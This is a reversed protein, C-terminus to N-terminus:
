RGPTTGIPEIRGRLKRVSKKGFVLDVVTWSDVAVPGSRFGHGASSGPAGTKMTAPTVSHDRTSIRTDDLTLSDIKGADLLTMKLTAQGYGHVAVDFGDDRVSVADVYVKEDEVLLALNGCWVIEGLRGEAVEVEIWGGGLRLRCRKVNGAASWDTNLLHVHRVGNGEDRVTYYVDGSPDDLAVPWDLSASLRRILPTMLPVLYSNGPYDFTCLLYATGKGVRNRVLIPAGSDAERALVEAGCLEVDALDVPAHLPGGSPYRFKDSQQYVGAVPNGAVDEEALMRVLRGGRGKVRAGFLDSFDGDHVLNLPELNNGLFARSENKTAHPVSMFLTGGDEVYAKLKGYQAEDMTNWGLLLLLKFQSLVEAPADIPILEIEGYPTGAYWRRVREPSQELTHLWVDPFFVDLYRLGYEATSPRWLEGTGGFNRWVLPALAALDDTRSLGDNVDCAYRGILCAQKVQLKGKRPHTKAYRNFRRMIDRRLLTVRDSPGYLRQHWTHYLHEEDNVQAAGAVFALYLSLWWMRLHQAGAPNVHGGEAQYTGWFPKRYTRAAGRADAILLVNNSKNFQSLTTEMGAACAQSHVVSSLLVLPGLGADVERVADVMRRFYAVCDEYATRMTRESEQVSYQHYQPKSAYGWLYGDCESWYYGKFGSGVERRIESALAFPCSDAVQFSIGYDRCYRAVALARERDGLVRGVYMDATQSDHIDRIVHERYDSDVPRLTTDDLGVLMSYQERECAAVQEIRACCGQAGARFRIEVDALPQRAVFSFRHVGAPLTGHPLQDAPTVVTEGHSPLGHLRRIPCHVTAAVNPDSNVLQVGPPSELELGSLQSQCSIEVTFEQNLVVWRPCATVEFPEELRQELYVRGLLLYHRDSGNTVRFTNSDRNLDTEPVEVHIEQVLGIRAPHGFRREASHVEVGNLSVSYPIVADGARGLHYAGGREIVADMTEQREAAISLCMFTAALCRRAASREETRDQLAVDVEVSGGPVAWAWDTCCWRNVPGRFDRAPILRRPRGVIEALMQADQPQDLQPDHGDFTATLDVNSYRQGVHRSIVRTQLLEGITFELDATRSSFRVATDPSGAVEFLIGGLRNQSDAAQWNWAPEALPVLTEAVDGYHGNFAILWCRNLTGRQATVAGDWNCTAHQFPYPAYSMWYGWVIRVRYTEM